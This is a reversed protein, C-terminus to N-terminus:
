SNAAAFLKEIKIENTRSRTNIEEVENKLAENFIRNGKVFKKFEKEDERMRKDQKEIYEKMIMFDERTEYVVEQLEKFAKKFENFEKKLSYFEGQTKKLGVIEKKLEAVDTKLEAVDTKLQIVDTKLELVINLIQDIKENEM